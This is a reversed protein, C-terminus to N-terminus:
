PRDDECADGFDLAAVMGDLVVKKLQDDETHELILELRAREDEIKARDLMAENGHWGAIAGGVIGLAAAIVTALAPTLFRGRTEQDKVSAAARLADYHAVLNDVIHEADDADDLALELARRVRDREAVVAGLKDVLISATTEVRSVIRTPRWEVRVPGDISEFSQNPTIEFQALATLTNPDPHDYLTLVAGTFSHALDYTSPGQTTARAVGM